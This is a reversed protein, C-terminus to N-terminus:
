LTYIWQQIKEESDVHSFAVIIDLERYEQMEEKSVIINERIVFALVGKTEILRIKNGILKSNPYIKRMFLVARGGCFHRQTIISSSATKELISYYADTKIGRVVVIGLKHMLDYYAKDNNIAVVKQIGYQKSEICKVINEEDNYGAAIMMDANKLGEDEFLHHDEFTANIITARNQLLESAEKCYNIDKEILKIELGKCLLVQAIKQALLNAGFIVINKIESPLKNDLKLSIRKIIDGDGFLYLLDGEKIYELPTPTFFRNSREIGVIIVRDNIIDAVRFSPSNELDAKISILKFDSQIFSKVNNAKPYDFLGEVKKATSKFPFIAEDIGLRTFIHSKLFSDNKLRIIKKKIDFMDDVILTSILNSEDSDTVAIFLDFSKQYFSSYIEPDEINGFITLIDMSEELKHLKQRNKDVITINHKFSLTKALNYGVRGAGIIIIDM